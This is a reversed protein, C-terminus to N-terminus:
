DRLKHMYGATEITSKHIEIEVICYELKRRLEVNSAAALKDNSSVLPLISIGLSSYFTQESM